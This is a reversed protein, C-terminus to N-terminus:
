PASGVRPVSCLGARDRRDDKEAREGRDADLQRADGFCTKAGEALSTEIASEGDDRWKSLMVGDTWGSM